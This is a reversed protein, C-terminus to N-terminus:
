ISSRGYLGRAADSVAALVHADVDGMDDTFTAAVQIIADCGKVAHAWAHPRRLDGRVPAAGMRKLTDDSADTRSLARVEHGHRVLEKTVATGISGTAGLVLTRM